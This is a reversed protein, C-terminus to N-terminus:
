NTDTIKNSGVWMGRPLQLGAAPGVVSFWAALYMGTPLEIRFM